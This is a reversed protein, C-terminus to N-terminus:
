DLDRSAGRGRGMKQPVPRDWDRFRQYEGSFELSVHGPAGNRQIIELQAHHRWEEGKDGLPHAAERFLLAIIDAAAEIAGCDRLDTMVPPGSRKDAERSLQSLLIVAVGFEGAMAKLGNAIRDLEQNRNEGSGSGEGQMLQLFDVIVVDIGHRRKAEMTKRRVDMLTLARQDDLVMQLGRMEEVSDTVGSWVADPIERGRRLDALNVSGLAAVNRAVLESVPMEQSCVLVGRTKAMNRALTLVFATKGMKPRAGLVMLEGPRIGGSLMRDLARLGTSIAKSEGDSEAQLQDLYALVANDLHVSERAVRGEGLRSLKAMADDVKVLADRGPQAASEIVERGVQQLEREMWRERVIEAYRTIHSASPVSVSLAHLYRVEHGGEDAVTVIDAPKSAGILGAITTYIGRHAADYFMAAQLLVDVRDFAANHQLLAGLVSQEAEVSHPVQLADAFDRASM